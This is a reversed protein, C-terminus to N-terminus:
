NARSYYYWYFRLSLDVHYEDREVEPKEMVYDRIKTLFKNTLRRCDEKVIDDVVANQETNM